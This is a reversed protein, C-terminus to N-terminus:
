KSHSHPHAEGETMMLTGEFRSLMMIRERPLASEASQLEAELRRASEAPVGAKALASASRIADGSCLVITWRGDRGRLLARGGLDGQTWGAIAFNDAVVVPSVTLSADPKDFTQRLLDTIESEAGCLAPRVSGAILLAAVLFGQVKM